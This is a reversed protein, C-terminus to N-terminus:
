QQRLKPSDFWLGAVYIDGSIEQFVVKVSVDGTEESFKGKYYVSTYIGEDQVKWFEKSVYSGIKAKILANTQQFVAEPAANKMDETFHQSYQAYDNENMALLIGETIADAYEPEPRPNCASIAMILLLMTLIGGITSVTTKTL